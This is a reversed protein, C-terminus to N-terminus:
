YGPSLQSTGNDLLRLGGFSRTAIAGAAIGVVTSGIEVATTTVLNGLFSLFAVCTPAMDALALALERETSSHKIVSSHPNKAGAWVTVNTAGELRAHSAPVTLDASAALAYYNPGAPLEQQTLQKMFESGTALQNLNTARNPDKNELPSIAVGAGVLPNSTLITAVAALDAGAHPSDITAVLGLREIVALGEPTAALNDLALRLVIGGQSHAYLDVELGSPTNSAVETLLEALLVGKDALQRRSSNKDYSSIPIDALELSVETIEDSQLAPTRGGEYSFRLVDTPDYGLNKLPLNGINGGASESDFGDVLVAVRRQPPATPQTSAPTCDRRSEWWELTSQYLHRVLEIPSHALLLGYLEPGLGILLATSIVTLVVTLVPDVLNEIVWNAFVLGFSSLGGLGALLDDGFSAMASWVSGFGFGSNDFAVALALQAAEHAASWLEGGPENEPVLVVTLVVTGFFLLPDIYKGGERMGVHLMEGSHGVTQGSTVWQGSAVTVKDLYSYSSLRGDAHRLTVHQEGAVTGAFIVEGAAAAGVVTGSETQYKIGRHGPGYPTTPARFEAIVKADVPHHYEVPGVTIEEASAPEILALVSAILAVILFRSIARM